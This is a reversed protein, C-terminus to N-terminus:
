HASEDQGLVQVAEDILAKEAVSLRAELRESRERNVAAM